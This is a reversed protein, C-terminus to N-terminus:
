VADPPAPPDPHARSALTARTPLLARPFYEEDSDEPLDGAELMAVTDAIKAATDRDPPRAYPRLACLFWGQMMSIFFKGFDRFANADGAALRVGLVASAPEASFTITLQFQMSFIHQKELRLIEDTIETQKEEFSMDIMSYLRSLQKRKWVPKTISGMYKEKVKKTDLNVKEEVKGLKIRLMKEFIVFVCDRVIPKWDPDIITVIIRPFLNVRYEPNSKVRAFKPRELLLERLFNKCGTAKDKEYANAAFKLYAKIEAALRPSVASAVNHSQEFPDQVCFSTSARLPLARGALVNAKYIAFEDPAVGAPEFAKKNVATGLYPCVIMEEFNFMSYFEFFGGILEAITATNTSPPLSDQSDDFGTNWGDVLRDHQPDRQLWRAPPLLARPPQQLYFLMLMTLAYNTLKGTGSFEHVKAWYKIVVAMPILRPDAHLLFAVLKSNQAGLPTKFTLDCNTETPVHFFKVIPTNARPISLIESFVDPYMQLIRKARQVFNIQPNRFQAPIHVFCDADSTRVGLGTTISGFPIAVCGPWTPQLAREVDTYLTSLKNVADKSLRVAALLGELQRDFDGSFDLQKPDYPMSKQKTRPFDFKNIMPRYNLDTYRQDTYPRVTLFEGYVNVRKSEQLAQKAEEATPYSLIAVKNNIRDVKVNGFKAFVRLLDPALAYQPYGTVLVRKPDEIASERDGNSRYRRQNHRPSGENGRGNPGSNRPPQKAPGPTPNRIPSSAPGVSQLAKGSTTPKRKPSATVVPAATKSPTSPKSGSSASGSGGPPLTPSPAHSSSSSSSATPNSTTPSVAKPTRVPPTAPTPESTVAGVPLSPKDLKTSSGPSNPSNPSVTANPTTPSVSQPAQVPAAPKSESAVTGVPASSQGPPPSPGPSGSSNSSVARISSAPSVSQPRVSQDSTTNTNSATQAVKIPSQSNSKSPFPKPASPAVKPGLPTPAFSPSEVKRASRPDSPEGGSAEM